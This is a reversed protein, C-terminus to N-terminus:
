KDREVAEFVQSYKDIRRQDKRCCIAQEAKERKGKKFEGLIRMQKKNRGEREM